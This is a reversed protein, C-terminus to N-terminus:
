KFVEFKPLKFRTLNKKSRSFPKKVFKNRKPKEKVPKMGKSFELNEKNDM